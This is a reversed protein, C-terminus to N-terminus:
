PVADAVLRDEQVEDRRATRARQCMCWRAPCPGMEMAFGTNRQTCVTRDNEITGEVDDASRMLWV